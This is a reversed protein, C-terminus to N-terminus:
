SDNQTAFINLFFDFSLFLSRDIFPNERIRNPADIYYRFNNNELIKLLMSLEQVNNVSSHYEIFIKKVLKLKPEIEKLVELEAGEIDLKLFDVEETIYNSLTVAEVSYSQRSAEESNISSIRNADAGENIFNILAKEKWVAKEILDVKNWKYQSINEKLYKFITREPEFAIIRADPFKKKAYIVSLGINAGCDIIFPSKKGTKFKYIETIFLENFMFVFSAADPFKYIENGKQFRGATYRPLKSLKKIQQYEKNVARKLYNNIRKIM